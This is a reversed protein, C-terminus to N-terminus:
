AVLGLLWRLLEATPSWKGHKYFSRCLLWPAEIRCMVVTEEATSRYWVSRQSGTNVRRSGVVRALMLFAGSLLFQVGTHRWVGHTSTM